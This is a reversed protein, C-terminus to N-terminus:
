NLCGDFETSFLKFHQSWLCLPARNCYVIALSLGSLGTYHSRDKGDRGPDEARQVKIHRRSRESFQPHIVSRM